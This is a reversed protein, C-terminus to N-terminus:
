SHSPEIKEKDFIPLIFLIAIMLMVLVIYIYFFYGVLTFTHSFYNNFAFSNSQGNNLFDLNFLYNYKKAPLLLGESMPPVSNTTVAGLLAVFSGFLALIFALLKKIMQYPKSSVFVGVFLALISMSPILYRPGFAWGGWPDGWSSYLFVNVVILSILTIIEVSM